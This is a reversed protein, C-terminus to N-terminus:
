NIHYRYEHLPLPTLVFTCLRSLSPADFFTAMSIAMLRLPGPFRDRQSAVCTPMALTQPTTDKVTFSGIVSLSVVGSLLLGWPCKANESRLVNYGM